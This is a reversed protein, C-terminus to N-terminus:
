GELAARATGIRRSRRIEVRRVILWAWGLAGTGLPFFLLIGLALLGVEGWLRPRAGARRRQGIPPSVLPGRLHLSRGQALLVIGDVLAYVWVAAGVWALAVIALLTVSVLIGTLSKVATAAIMLLGVAFPHM